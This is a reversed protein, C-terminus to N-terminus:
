HACLTEALAVIITRPLLRILSSMLVATGDFACRLEALTAETNALTADTNEDEAAMSSEQFATVEDILRQIRGITRSPWRHIGFQRAYKKLVTQGIQLRQAAQKAPLHYLQLLLACCHLLTPM